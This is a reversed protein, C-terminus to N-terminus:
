RISSVNSNQWVTTLEDEYIKILLFEESLYKRMHYYKRNLFTVYRIKYVTNFREKEADTLPDCIKTQQCWILKQMLSDKKITNWSNWDIMSMYGGILPIHHKMQYYFSIGTDHSGLTEYVNGRFGFPIELMSFDGPPALVSLHTDPIYKKGTHPINILRAETFTIVLLVCALVGKLVNSKMNSFLHQLGLAAFVAICIEVLVVLRSPVRIIKFLPINDFLMRYLPTLTGLSLVFFITLCITFIYFVKRDFITRKKYIFLLTLLMPVMGLYVTKGEFGPAEYCIRLISALLLNCPVLIYSLLNANFDVYTPAYQIDGIKQTNIFIIPLILAYTLLLIKIVPEVMEFFLANREERADFFYHVIVSACIFVGAFLIIYFFNRYETYATIALFVAAGVVYANTYKRYIFLQALFYLCFGIWETSAIDLQGILARFQRNYSFTFIFSGFFAAFNSKMFLRLFLYFGMGTVIYTFFIIFNYGAIPGWIFAVPSSLIGHVFSIDQSVNIHLPYFQLNTDIPIQHLYVISYMFWWLAWAYTYVDGIGPLRSTFEVILPYTLFSTALFLLLGVIVLPSQIIYKLYKM